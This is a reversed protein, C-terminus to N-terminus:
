ISRKRKPYMIWNVVMSKLLNKPKHFLDKKGEAALYNRVFYVFREKYDVPISIIVDNWVSIYRNKKNLELIIDTITPWEKYNHPQPPPALFYRADDIAIISNAAGKNIIKIEELLPCELKKGATKGGSWHADLWYVVLDNTLKPTIKKLAKSSDGLIFEVNKLNGIRKKVDRHITSSKEITYVTRFYKSAWETTSGQYTGTEVFYKVKLNNVIFDGLPVPFGSYISGMVFGGM